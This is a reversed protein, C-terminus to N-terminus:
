VLGEQQRWGAIYDLLKGVYAMRKRIMGVSNFGGASGQRQEASERLTQDVAAATVDKERLHKVMIPCHYACGAFHYVTWLWNDLHPSESLKEWIDVAKRRFLVFENDFPHGESRAAMVVTDPCKHWTGDLNTSALILDWGHTLMRADDNWILCWDGAAARAMQEYWGSLELYGRGRPGVLVKLDVLAGVKELAALTEADDDDAKVVLELWQQNWALSM